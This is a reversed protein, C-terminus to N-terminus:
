ASIWVGLWVRKCGNGLLFIHVRKGHEQLHRDTNLEHALLVCNLHMVAVKVKEDLKKFPLFICVRTLLIYCQKIKPSNKWKSDEVLWCAVVIDCSVKTKIGTHFPVSFALSKSPLSRIFTIQDWKYLSIGKYKLIFLSMVLM